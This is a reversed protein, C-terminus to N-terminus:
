AHYDTRMTVFTWVYRISYYDNPPEIGMSFASIKIIFEINSAFIAVSNFLSLAFHIM